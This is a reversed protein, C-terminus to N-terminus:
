SYWGSRTIALWCVMWNAKSLPGRGTKESKFVSPDEEKKYDATDVADKVIDINVIERQKLEKADLKLAQLGITQIDNQTKLTSCGFEGCTQAWNKDLYGCPDMKTRLSGRDNDMGTRACLPLADRLDWSSAVDDVGSLMM